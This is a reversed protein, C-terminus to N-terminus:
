IAADFAQRLEGLFKTKEAPEYYDRPGGWVPNPWARDDRYRGILHIHLQNVQNGLAGINLKEPTCLAQLLHSAIAIEDSLQHQQERELDIWEAAGVVRPVLLLWPFCKNDMLRIQCLPYDTILESDRALVTDLQFNEM